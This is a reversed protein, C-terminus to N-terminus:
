RSLAPLGEQEMGVRHLRAEGYGNKLGKKGRLGKNGQEGLEWLENFDKEAWSGAGGRLSPQERVNLAEHDSPGSNGLDIFDCISSFKASSYKM